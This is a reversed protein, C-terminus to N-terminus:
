KCGTVSASGKANVTCAPKGALTVAALGLADVKAANTVTARVIAPGEAGIVADKVTLGEADLSSTGRVTATMNAARGAIRTSGAGSIGLKLQDIDASDIRASGSGQIALDFGLGKLKDIILTGAGNLWATGLDHTGVEITVPGRNEGPYGGWGGSSPRVILTRGEVRVSVGDLSAQSGSARAFPAVNTKLRVEYPGDVRIRDFSTVSYNRQAVPAAATAPLSALALLALIPLRDIM